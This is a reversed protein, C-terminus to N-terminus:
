KNSTLKEDVARVFFADELNKPVLSPRTGSQHVWSANTPTDMYKNVAQYTTTKNAFHTKITLKRNFTMISYHYHDGVRM